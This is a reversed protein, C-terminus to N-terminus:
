LSVQSYSLELPHKDKELYCILEYFRSCVLMAEARSSLDLYTFIRTFCEDPLSLLQDEEFAAISEDQNRENTM